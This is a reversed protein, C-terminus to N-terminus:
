DFSHGTAPIPEKFSDNCLYCTYTKEGKETCTPDKTVVGGWSHAVLNLTGDDNVTLVFEVETGGPIFMKENAGTTSNYLTASYTQCYTQTYFFNANGTTKICVYSEKDFTVKLKGDVFKYSGMNNVTNGIGYDVGNISGVLYYDVKGSLNQWVKTAWVFTDADQPISLDDTQIKDGDNFIIKLYSPITASYVNNQGEVPTMLNGPWANTYTEGNEVWAYLYVNEWGDSNQFYITRYEIDGCGNCVGNDYSHGTAPITEVKTQLCKSCTFTKEGDTTCTAKVTIQGDDWAHKCPEEYHLTLSGDDNVTLTFILEIGCPVYMKETYEGTTTDYFTATDETVYSPVMYWAKNGDAKLFVYSDKEFKVKLKGDVFLYEGMNEYDADFGYNKGNIYGVLYYKDEQAGCYYCVGGAYHHTDNTAIHERKVHDCKSCQYAMIGTISCNPERTVAGEGYTHQCCSLELADVSIQKIKITVDGSGIIDFTYGTFSQDYKYLTAKSGTAGNEKAYYHYQKGAYTSRIYVYNASGGLTLSIESGTIPHAAVEQAKGDVKELIVLEYDPKVLIGNQYYVISGEGIGDMKEITLGNLKLNTYSVM